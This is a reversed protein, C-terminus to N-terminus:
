LVARLRGLPDYVYSTTLTESPGAVVQTAVQRGQRDTFAVTVQGQEDTSQTRTLTGAAYTGDTVVTLLLNANEAFRYRPVEGAANSGYIM